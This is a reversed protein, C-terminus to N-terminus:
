LVLKLGWVGPSTQTPDALRATFQGLDHPVDGAAALIPGLNRPLDGAASELGEIVGSALVKGTGKTAANAAPEAGQGGAWCALGPLFILLVIAALCLAGFKPRVCSHGHDTARAEARKAM